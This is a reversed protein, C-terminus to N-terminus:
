NKNFTGNLLENKLSHHLPGKQHLPPPGANLKPNIIRLNLGFIISPGGGGFFLFPVDGCDGKTIETNFSVESHM